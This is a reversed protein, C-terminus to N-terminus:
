RPSRVSRRSATCRPPARTRSPSCRPAFFAGSEADADGTSGEPGGLRVQGGADVLRQVAQRVESQQEKSALAGMTTGEVRPDGLVVKAALRETLAATVAEVRDQPVIVRRIATCKQGAKVTMEQFVVKM